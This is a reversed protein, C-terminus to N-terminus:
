RGASVRHTRPRARVRALSTILADTTARARARGAVEGSFGEARAQVRAGGTRIGALYTPLYSVTLVLVFGVYLDGTAADPDSGSIAGIVLFGWGFILSGVVIPGM